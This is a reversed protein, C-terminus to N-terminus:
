INLVRFTVGSSLAACLWNNRIEVDVIEVAPHLYSKLHALADYNITNNKKM